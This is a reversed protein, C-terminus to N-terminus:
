LLLVFFESKWNYIILKERRKRSNNCQWFTWMKPSSGFAHGEDKTVINISDRYAWVRFPNQMSKETTSFCM